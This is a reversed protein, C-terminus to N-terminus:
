PTHRTPPTEHRHWRGRAQARRGVQPSRLGALVIWGICCVIMLTRLLRISRDFAVLEILLVAAVAEAAPKVWGGIAAITWRRLTAPIARYALQIAHDSISRRVVDIGKVAIAGALMWQSPFLTAVLIAALTAAPFSAIAWRPGLRHILAGSVTLQMAGTMAFLGGYFWGFYATLTAEATPTSGLVLDSTLKWHFDVLLVLLSRLVVIAAIWLAAPPVTRWWPGTSSPPRMRPQRNEGATEGRAGGAPRSSRRGRAATAAASNTDAPQPRKGGPTRPSPPSQPDLPADTRSASHADGAVGVQRRQKILRTAVACLLAAILVDTTAAIELLRPAGFQHVTMGIVTGFVMGALTSGLGSLAPVQPPMGDPFVEHLLTAFHISGQAGRLEALLYVAAIPSPWTPHSRTLHELWWTLLAFAVHVAAVVYELSHRHAIVGYLFTGLGVAGAAALYMAPLREAGVRHLFMGDGVTRCSVYGSTMLFAYLFLVLVKWRSLRPEAPPETVENRPKQCIWKKRPKGRPAELPGAAGAHYTRGPGVDPTKVAAALRPSRASRYPKEPQDDM